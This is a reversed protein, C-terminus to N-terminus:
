IRSPTSSPGQPRSNTSSGSSIRSMESNPMMKRSNRSPSFRCGCSNARMIRLVVRTVRILEARNASAPNAIARANPKVRISPSNIPPAAVKELVPILDRIASIKKEHILVYADEFEAEMNEASTVFYPSLYGKDFQMGDKVDLTTELSKAEEITIVGDKGVKDM